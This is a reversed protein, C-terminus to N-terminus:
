DEVDFYISCADKRETTVSTMHTKVDYTLVSNNVCKSSKYSYGTTPIDEALYYSGTGLGLEDTKELFVSLTYDYKNINMNGVVANLLPISAENHYYGYSVYLNIILLNILILVGGISLYISKNEELNLKETIKKKFEKYIKLTKNKLIDGSNIYHFFM